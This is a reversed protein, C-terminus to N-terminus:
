ISADTQLQRHYRETTSIRTGRGCRHAVRLNKAIERLQASAASTTMPARKKFINRFVRRGSKIKNQQQQQIPDEAHPLLVSLVFGLVALSSFILVAGLASIRQLFVQGLFPATLVGIRYFTSM